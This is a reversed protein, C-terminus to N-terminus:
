KMARSKMLLNSFDCGAQLVKAADDHYGADMLGSALGGALKEVTDAAESLQVCLGDEERKEETELSM